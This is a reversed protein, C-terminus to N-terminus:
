NHRTPTVIQQPTHAERQWPKEQQPICARPRVPKLPQLMQAEVTTTCLSLQEM